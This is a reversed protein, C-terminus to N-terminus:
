TCELFLCASSAAAMRVIYV